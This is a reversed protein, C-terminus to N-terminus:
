LPGRTAYTNSTEVPSWRFGIGRDPRWTQRSNIPKTMCVMGYRRVVGILKIM